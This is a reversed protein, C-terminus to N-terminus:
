LNGPTNGAWVYTRQPYERLPGLYSIASLEQSLHYEFNWIFSLDLQLLSSEQSFGYFKIPTIKSDTEYLIKPGRKQPHFNEAIFEYENQDADSRKLGFAYTALRYRFSELAIRSDYDRFAVEFDLTKFRKRLDIEQADGKTFPSKGTQEHEISWLT